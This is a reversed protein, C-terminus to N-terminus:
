DTEKIILAEKKSKELLDEMDGFQSIRMNEKRQEEDSLGFAGNDEGRGYRLVELDYYTPKTAKFVGKLKDCYKSKSRMKPKAVPIAYNDFSDEPFNFDDNKQASTYAIGIFRDEEPSGENHSILWEMLLQPITYEPKYNDEPNKVQIMTSIVLPFYILCNTMDTGWKEKSPIRLDLLRIAETSEFRSVMITGFDPRELEEWCGYVYRSLYLCPYGPVSYRNTPVIGRKDFPIHFIDKVKMGKREHPKIERMRYFSTGKPIEYIYEAYERLGKIEATRSKFGDLQNKIAAYASHRKGMNEADIARRIGDCLQKVRKLLEDWQDPRDVEDLSEINKRYNNFKENLTSSFNKTDPKVPVLKMLEEYLEKKTM